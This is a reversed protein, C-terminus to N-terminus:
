EIQRYDDSQLNALRSKPHPPRRFRCFARREKLSDKRHGLCPSALHRRLIIALLHFRSRDPPAVLNVRTAGLWDVSFSIDFLVFSVLHLGLLSGNQDDFFRVSSM